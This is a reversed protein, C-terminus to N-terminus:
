RRQFGALGLWEPRAARTKSTRSNHRRLRSKVLPDRGSRTYGTRVVIPTQPAHAPMGIAPEFFRQLTTVFLFTPKRERSLLRGSAEETTMLDRPIREAVRGPHGFDPSQFSPHAQIRAVKAFRFAVQM